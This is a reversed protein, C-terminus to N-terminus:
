GAAAFAEVAADRDAYTRFHTILGDRLVAVWGARLNLSAGSERGRGEIRGLVLVWDDAERVEEVLWRLGTWTAEVADRYEAGAGPGRFVTGDLAARVPVIEADNAFHAAFDDRDRRNFADMASRVIEVNQSM